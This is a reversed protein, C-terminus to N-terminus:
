PQLSNAARMRVERFDGAYAYPSDAPLVSGDRLIHRYRPRASDDDTRVVARQCCFNGCWAWVRAYAPTGDPAIHRWEAPTVQAM